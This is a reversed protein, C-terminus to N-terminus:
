HRLAKACSNKGGLVCKESSQRMLLRENKVRLVSEDEQTLIVEGHLHFNGETNELCETSKEM